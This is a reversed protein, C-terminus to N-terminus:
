RGDESDTVFDFVDDLAAEVTSKVDNNEGMECIRCAGRIQDRPHIYERQCVPCTPTKTLDIM